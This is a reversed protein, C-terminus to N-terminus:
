SRNQQMRFCKIGRQPAHRSISISTNNYVLISVSVRDYRLIVSRYVIIDHADIRRGLLKVYVFIETTSIVKLHSHTRFAKPAM